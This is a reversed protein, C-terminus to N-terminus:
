LGAKKLLRELQSLNVCIDRTVPSIKPNDDDPLREGMIYYHELNCMNSLFWYLPTIYGPSFIEIVQTGPNCFTLNTLGAGHPAVVVEAANLYHVQELISLTELYVRQFGYQELLQVVAENNLIRRYAAKNRDIYIRKYQPIKPTIKPNLFAQRLYQCKWESLSYEQALSPVIVQKAKLNPYDVSELIKDVPVGLIELSDIQYQHPCHTFVFKDITINQLHSIKQVLDLRAVVDFMWHFYGGGGWRVSLFAITEDLEYVSSQHNYSILFEPHGSCLESILQNKSNLVASTLIPDGLVQGEPLLSVFAAYSPFYDQKFYPNLDEDLTLPPSCKTYREPYLNITTLHSASDLSVITDKPYQCFAEIVTPPLIKYHLCYAASEAYGQKEFINALEDYAEFCDTKIEIAKILFNIAADWNKEQQFLNGLKIYLGYVNPNFEIAKQYIAIAEQYKQQKQLIDGMNEYIFPLNPNIELAAKYLTLAEDLQHKKELVNALKYYATSLHPNIKQAQRYTAIADEIQEQEVLADAIKIYAWYNEPNLKLGQRYNKIAKEWNQCEMWVDALKFYSWCVDPNIQLSHSYCNIAEDWNQLQTFIDGLSNYYHSAKPNLEIAQKYNSIVAEWQQQHSFAKGLLYYLKPTQPYLELAKQYLDIVVEWQNQEILNRALSFYDELKVKEPELKLAQYQYVAAKDPQNNYHCIRVLNRYVGALDPQLQLAKEYSKIAEKWKKKAAYFSGLNAHVEAFDPQIALAQDYWYKAEELQGRRQMVVGLVKYAPAFDPQLKLAQYCLSVAKEWQQNQIYQNTQTIFNEM